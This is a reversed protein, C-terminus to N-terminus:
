GVRMKESKKLLPISALCYSRWRWCSSEAVYEKIDINRREAEYNNITINWSIAVNKNIDIIWSIAVCKNNDIIWSGAVYKYWYNLKDSRYRVLEVLPWM